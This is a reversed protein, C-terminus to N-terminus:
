SRDRNPAHREVIRNIIDTTSIGKTYPVTKFIGMSIPARYWYLITEPNFDDGHAVVDIRNEKIWEESLFLPPAAIVEDVYRCASVEAVREDLTLVPKRKYSAIDEDSLVGVILYGGLERSKKFFEVHGAHMLDACVDVYVRKLPLIENEAYTFCTVSILLPLILSFYRFM